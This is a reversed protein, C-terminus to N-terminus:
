GFARRYFDPELIFSPETLLIPAGPKPCLGARPRPQRGILAVLIGIEEPGDTRRTALTCRQHHREGVSFGHLQVEILDAAVNRVLGVTDDQHITGPPM